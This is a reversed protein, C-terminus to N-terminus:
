VYRLILYMLGGYRRDQTGEYLAASRDVPFLLQSSRHQCSNRLGRNYKRGLGLGFGEVPVYICMFCLAAFGVSPTHTVFLM